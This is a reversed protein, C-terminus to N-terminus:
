ARWLMVAALVAVAAALAAAAYRTWPLHAVPAAAPAARALPSGQAPTPTPAPIQSLREVAEESSLARLNATPNLQPPLADPSPKAEAAPDPLANV